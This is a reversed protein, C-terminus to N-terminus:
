VGSVAVMLNQEARLQAILAAVPTALGLAAPQCLNYWTEGEAEVVDASAVVWPHIELEFHTFGHRLPSLPRLLVDARLARSAALGRLSPADVAELFGYLGGWIGDAPRRSLLVSDGRCILLWHAVRLPRARQARPVPLQAQRGDRRAVCDASVPCRACAPKRLRCCTAGLDMIAQTYDGARETPTLQESLQWLRAVVAAEGPFGDIGAWRALVRTVNADLIPHRRDLAQALIAGATSRGIGPLAHLAELADPMTGGHDQVVLRASRLLNRARAYYGLGSWLHLVEDEAAAALAAVDPFQAMFREFYPIVATVQTQQLMVESIWVRYLTRDRQWPLDHRGERAFWALLRTAFPEAHHASPLEESEAM